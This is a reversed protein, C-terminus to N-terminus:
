SINTDFSRNLIKGISWAPNQAERCICFFGAGIKEIEVDFIWKASAGESRLNSDEITYLTSENWALAAKVLRLERTEFFSPASSQHAGHCPLIWVQNLCANNKQDDLM